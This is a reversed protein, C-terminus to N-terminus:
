KEDKGTVFDPVSGLGDSILSFFQLVYAFGNKVDWKHYSAMSFTIIAPNATSTLQYIRFAQTSWNKESIESPRPLTSHGYDTSKFLM